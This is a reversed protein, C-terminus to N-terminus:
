KEGISPNGFLSLLCDTNKQNSIHKSSINYSLLSSIFLIATNLKNNIKPVTIVVSAPDIFSATTAAASLSPELWLLLKAPARDVAIFLPAVPFVRLPEIAPAAIFAKDLREPLYL